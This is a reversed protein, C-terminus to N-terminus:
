TVDIVINFRRLQVDHSIGYGRLQRSQILLLGSSHDSALGSTFRWPLM